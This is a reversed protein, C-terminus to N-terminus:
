ARTFTQAIVARVWRMRAVATDPHDGFEEAVRATCGDVGFDRIARNIATRVTEGGNLDRRQQVWVFLAACRASDTDFPATMVLKKRALPSRELQRVVARPADGDRDDVARSQM